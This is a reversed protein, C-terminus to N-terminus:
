SFNMKTGVRDILCHGVGEELCTPLTIVILTYKCNSSDM